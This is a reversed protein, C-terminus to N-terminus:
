ATVEGTLRQHRSTLQRAFVVFVVAALVTVTAEAFVIGQDGAIQKALEEDSTGVGSLVTDTQAFMLGLPVLSYLVFWVYTLPSTPRSKWEGGIPVDPDSARWLESFVLTPIIYLLPPLFWGGIAWGPGWTTGRHLSRHNAALRYMWIMVLVMSAIVVAGQVVTFLMYPTVQELFDDSNMSGDLFAEADDTVTRSVALTLLGFAAAMGVLVVSARGVAGVRKLPVMGIPSATYGSYGAPAILNPPPPPPVRDGSGPPPPPLNTVALVTDPSSRASFGAPTSAPTHEHGAWNTSDTTM